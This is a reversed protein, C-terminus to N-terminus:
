GANLVALGAAAVQGDQPSTGGSVGIAGVCEGGALIPVGGEVPVAGPLRLIAMRGGALAEEFAKTPRRFRAASAAKEQAVYVSGVQTGDMREFYLLHGGDDVVCIVMNWHNRRAEAQAAAAIQKAAGLTLITKTALQTEPM